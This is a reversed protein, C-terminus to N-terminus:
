KLIEQLKTSLGDLANLEHHVQAQLNDMEGEVANKLIELEEAYQGQDGKAQLSKIVDYLDVHGQLRGYGWLLRDQPQNIAYDTFYEYTEKSWDYAYWNNDILYLSNDLAESAVGNELAQISDKLAILNNQSHEHPFISVDEWTLRVFNDEVYRFTELVQHNVDAAENLISQAEDQKDEDLAKVYADNLTKVREWAQNAFTELSEIKASLADYATINDDMIVGGLVSEDLREKFAELRTSFDLPSIALRDYHIMLQGYMHYHHRLAAESYTTKDDMPSHYTSAAFGGRLATVSSPIGAISFSFDDSWTQIPNIIEVGGEFVGESSQISPIFTELYSTLEYSARIQDVDGEVMAPLEFNINAIVKGVWEPHVEFIQKYAGTSWDYRTNSVGWEEAATAIFVLTKEPTYGSDVLSKAIGLMLSVAVSNDQFGEFYADYHASMLVMSEPDKGPITGVINYTKQDRVVESKADLKISMEHSAKQNLTERIANADNRSISFAAADESGCIDQANLADDSIESYGGDQAVIVGLAGNLYAEYAPYNVWWNERQNIDILVLKGNVDLDKLDEQTGQGGDILTYESLGSSDFNTQYMGLEVEKQSGDVTTYTLKAYEFTWADVTIEDKTINQLGIAAMEEKIAEGAEYEASSGASRYGLAENTRFTGLKLAFDYAYQTDVKEIFQAQAQAM